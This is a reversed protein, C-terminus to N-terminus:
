EETFQLAQYSSPSCYANSESQAVNIMVNVSRRARRLLAAHIKYTRVLGAEAAVMQEQLEDLDASAEAAHNGEARSVRLEDDLFEIEGCLAQQQASLQQITVLERSLLANQTARLAQTLSAIAHLRCKLIEKYATALTPKTMKIVLDEEKGAL